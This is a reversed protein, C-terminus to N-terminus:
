ATTMGPRTPSARRRGPPRPQWWAAGMSALVTMTMAILWGLAVKRLLHSKRGEVVNLSRGVVITGRDSPGAWSTAVTAVRVAPRPQWTVLDARRGAARLVGVPPVPTAGDLVATPVFGQRRRRILDGVAAALSGVAIVDAMARLDSILIVGDKVGTPWRGTARLGGGSVQWFLPSGVAQALVM